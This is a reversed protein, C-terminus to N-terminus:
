DRTAQVRHQHSIWHGGGVQFPVTLTCEPLSESDTETVKVTLTERAGPALTIPELRAPEFRWRGDASDCSPFVTISRRSANRLPVKLHSRKLEVSEPALRRTVQLLDYNDLPDYAQPDVVSEARIAAVSVNGERVSVQLLHPFSGTEAAAVASIAAANTMIYTVGDRRQGHLHHHHGYFVFDVGNAAFLEHVAEANDLLGPPRHMFVFHHDQGRTAELTQAVWRLQEGGIRNERGLEDSNLVLFQSNRYAFTHYDDGWLRRYLALVEADTVKGPGYVDHNGPVPVFTTRTALPAIQRKFRDWEAVTDPATRYGQIMDGVQVVFAPQLRAVDNILRNFVIPQHFQSDGLVVFTFETQPPQPVSPTTGIATSAGLLAPTGLTLALLALARRM